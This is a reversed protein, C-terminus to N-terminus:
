RYTRMSLVPRALLSRVTARSAAEAQPAAAEREAKSLCKIPKPGEGVAALADSPFQRRWMVFLVAATSIMLVYGSVFWGLYALAFFLARQGRNFHRAAAVNM